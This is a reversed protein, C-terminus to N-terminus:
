KRFESVERELKAYMALLEDGDLEGGTNQRAKQKELQDRQETYVHHLVSASYNHGEKNNLHKRLM